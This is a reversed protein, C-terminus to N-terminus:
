GAEPAKKIGKTGSVDKQNGLDSEKRRIDTGKWSLRSMM